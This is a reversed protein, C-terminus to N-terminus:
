LFVDLISDFGKDIHADATITITPKRAFNVTGSEYAIDLDEAELVKRAFLLCGDFNQRVTSAPICVALNHAGITIIKVGKLSDTM